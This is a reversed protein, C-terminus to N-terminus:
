RPRLAYLRGMESKAPAKEHSAYRTIAATRLAGEPAGTDKPGPQGVQTVTAVWRKTVKRPPEVLGLSDTILLGTGSGGAESVVACVWKPVQRPVWGGSDLTQASALSSSTRTWRAM